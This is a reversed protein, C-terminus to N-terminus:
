RKVRQIKLEAVLNEWIRKVYESYNKEPSNGNLIM